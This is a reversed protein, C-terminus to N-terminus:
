ITEATKQPKRRIGYIIAALETRDCAPPRTTAVVLKWFSDLALSGSFGDLWDNKRPEGRLMVTNRRADTGRSAPAEDDTRGTDAERVEM